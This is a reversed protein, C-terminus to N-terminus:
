AWFCLPKRCSGIKQEILEPSSPTMKNGLQSWLPPDSGRLKNWAAHSSFLTSWIGSAWQMQNAAGELELGMYPHSSIHHDHEAGKGLSARVPHTLRGWASESQNRRFLPVSIYESAVWHHCASQWLVIKAIWDIGISTQHLRTLRQSGRCFVFAPVLSDNTLFDSEFVSSKNM